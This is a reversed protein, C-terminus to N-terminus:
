CDAPHNDLLKIVEGIQRLNQRLSTTGDPTSAFFYLRPLNPHRVRLHKNITVECGRAELQRVARKM